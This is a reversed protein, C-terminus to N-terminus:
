LNLDEVAWVSCCTLPPERGRQNADPRRQGERRARAPQRQRRDHHVRPRARRRPRPIRRRARLEEALFPPFRLQARATRTKPPGSTIRTPAYEALARRIAATAPKEGYDRAFPLPDADPMGLFSEFWTYRDTFGWFTIDRCGAALCEGIVQEYGDAQREYREADGTVPLDMETVAVDVGVARLEAVLGAVVGPAPPGLFLHMQLGVGSIPVGEARLRAVLDVFAARKAPYVELFTENLYLRAAPDAAHAARFAMELYEPGLVQYFHNAYLQDGAIELPENVVDWRDVRGRYRRVVRTIYEELVARLEIPDQITEVWVPQTDFVQDWVLTHGKIAMDHREAFAVIRDAASFDFVEREPQLPGWKLDEEPTLSNFQRALVRRYRADTALPHFPVAAGILIDARDAVVRLPCDSALACKPARSTDRARSGDPRADDASACAALALISVCLLASLCRPSIM